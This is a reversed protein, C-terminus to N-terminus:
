RSQGGAARLALHLWGARGVPQGRAPNGTKAFVAESESFHPAANEFLSTHKARFVQNRNGAMGVRECHRIRELEPRLGNGESAHHRRLDQDVAGAVCDDVLLFGANAFVQELKKCGVVRWSRLCRRELSNSQQRGFTKM